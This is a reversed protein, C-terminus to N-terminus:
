KTVSPVFSGRWGSTEIQLQNSLRRRLTFVAGNAIGLGVLWHAAPGVTIQEKSFRAELDPGNKCIVGSIDAWLGEGAKIFQLQLVGNREFISVSMPKGDDMSAETWRSSFAPDDVLARLEKITAACGPVVHANASMSLLILLVATFAARTTM